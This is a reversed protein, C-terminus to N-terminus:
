FNLHDQSLILSNYWDIEPVLNIANAALLATKFYCPSGNFSDVSCVRTLIKDDKKITEITWAPFQIKWDANIVSAIRRIRLRSKWIEVEQLADEKNSFEWPSGSNMWNDNDKIALNVEIRYKLGSDQTTFINTLDPLNYDIIPIIDEDETLMIESEFERLDRLCFAMKYRLNSWDMQMVQLPINENGRFTCLSGVKYGILNFRRHQFDSTTPVDVVIFNEAEVGSYIETGKEDLVWLKRKTLTGESHLVRGLVGEQDKVVENKRPLRWEQERWEGM